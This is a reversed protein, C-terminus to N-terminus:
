FRNLEEYEADFNKHIWQRARYIMVYFANESMGLKKAAEAAPIDLYCVMMIAEHWRPNKKMLAAFICEHLKARKEEAIKSLYESELSESVPEEIVDSGEMTETAVTRAAKKGYNLAFHKATTYLWSKINSYEEESEIKKNTMDKYLALFTDQMIDEASILDDVYTYAAKLVLNKYNSYIENFALKETLTREGTIVKVQEPNRGKREGETRGYAM